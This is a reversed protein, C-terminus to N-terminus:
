FEPSMELCVTNGLQRTKNIKMAPLMIKEPGNALDFLSKSDKNFWVPAIFLTFRDVYGDGLNMFSSTLEAGAEVFIERFGYDRALKKLLKIIDILGDPRLESKILNINSNILKEHTNKIEIDKDCVVFIRNGSKSINLSGSIYDDLLELKPDLIALNSALTKIEGKKETNKLRVNFRPNDAKITGLGTIVLDSFARLEHVYGRAEEGTFWKDKNSSSANNIKGNLSISSKVQVFPLSTKNFKNFGPNLNLCEDKLIGTEVNIGSTKLTDIGCGCVEPCDDKVGLYVKAIGAEIIASTCPPTKGHHNCPELTVCINCGRIDNGKARADNIAEIEAHDLGFGKHYGAGKINGENDFIVAGVRPNPLTKNLAKKALIIAELMMKEILEKKMYVEKM